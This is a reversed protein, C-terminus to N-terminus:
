RHPGKQRDELESTVRRIHRQIYSLKREAKAAADSKPDVDIARQWYRNAADSDNLKIAALGRYYFALAYHPDWETAKSFYQEARSYQKSNYYKRGQELYRSAQKHDVDPTPSHPVKVKQFYEEAASKLAQGGKSVRAVADNLFKLAM